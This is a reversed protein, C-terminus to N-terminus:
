KKTTYFYKSMFLKCRYFCCFYINVVVNANTQTNLFLFSYFQVKDFNYSITNNKEYFKSVCIM